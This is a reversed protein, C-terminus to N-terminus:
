DLLEHCRQRWAALRECSDPLQEKVWSGTEIAVLLSIDAFSIADGCLFPQDGLEDNIQLLGARYRKRGRDVLEPIQEVDIPGPLARNEFAPSRNRLMEAFAELLTVFVRHDWSLVLARELTSRGLLPREPFHEELYACIGIVETLLVGEETVLAPLTGMPNVELFTTERHAGARMDVDTIPLEIGKYSQFLALRRPNPASEYTYLHLPEAEFM